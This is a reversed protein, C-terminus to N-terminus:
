STRQAGKRRQEEHLIQKMLVFLKHKVTQLAELKQEVTELTQDTSDAKQDSLDTSDAKQDSSSPSPLSIEQVVPLSHDLVEEPNREGQKSVEEAVPSDIISTLEFKDTTM